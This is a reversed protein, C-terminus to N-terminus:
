HSTIPPQKLKAVCEPCYWKKGVNRWGNKRYHQAPTRQKKYTMYIASIDQMDEFHGCGENDCYISHQISRYIPM